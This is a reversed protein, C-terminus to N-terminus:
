YLFLHVFYLFSLRLGLVYHLALRNSTPPPPCCAYNNWSVWCDAIVMPHKVIWWNDSNYRKRTCLLILIVVNCVWVCVWVTNYYSIANLHCSNNSFCFLVIIKFWPCWLSLHSAALNDGIFNNQPLSVRWSWSLESYMVGWTRPSDNM